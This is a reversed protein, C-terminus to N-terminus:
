NLRGEVARPQFHFLHEWKRAPQTVIQAYQAEQDFRLVVTVYDHSWWLIPNKLDLKFRLM